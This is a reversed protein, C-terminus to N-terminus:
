LIGAAVGLNFSDALVDDLAPIFATYLDLTISVTAHGLRAQEEPTIALEVDFQFGELSVIPGTPTPTTSVAARTPAITVATATPTVSPAESCGASLLSLLAPVSLLSALRRM